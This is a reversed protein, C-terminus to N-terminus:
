AATPLQRVALAALQKDSVLFLDMDPTAIEIRREAPFWKAVDGCGALQQLYDGAPRDRRTHTNTLDFGLVPPNRASNSPPDPFQSWGITAAAILGSTQGGRLVDQCRFDSDVSPIATRFALFMM